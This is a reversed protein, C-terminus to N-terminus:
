QLADSLPEALVADVSRCFLALTQCNPAEDRKTTTEATSWVSAALQWSSLSWAVSSGVSGEGHCGPEMGERVVRHPGERRGGRGRRRGVVEGARGGWVWSCLCRLSCEAARRRRRGRQGLGGRAAGQEAECVRGGGGRGGGGRRRGGLWVRVRELAAARGVSSCLAPARWLAADLAPTRCADGDHAPGVEDDSDAALQAHRAESLDLAARGLGALQRDLVDLEAVVLHARREEWEREGEDRSM